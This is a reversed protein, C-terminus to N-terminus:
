ITGRLHWRSLHRRAQARRREQGEDSRSVYHRDGEPSCCDLCEEKLACRFGVETNRAEALRFDGVFSQIDSTTNAAFGIVSPQRPKVGRAKEVATLPPPHSMDIGIILRAGDPGAIWAEASAGRFLCEGESNLKRTSLM